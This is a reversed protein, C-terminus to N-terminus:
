AEDYEEIEEPQVADADAVSPPPKIGEASLADIIEKVLYRARDAQTKTGGNSRTAARREARKLGGLMLRLVTADELDLEITILSPPPLVVSPRIVTVKTTM